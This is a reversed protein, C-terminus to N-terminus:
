QPCEVMIGLGVKREFALMIFDITFLAMPLIQCCMFFGSVVAVATMPSIIYMAAAKPAMAITAM